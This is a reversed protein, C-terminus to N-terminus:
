GMGGLLAMINFGQPRGLRFPSFVFLLAFVRARCLGSWLIQHLVFCLCTVDIFRSLTVWCRILIDFFWWTRLSAKSSFNCKSGDHLGFMMQSEYVMVLCFNLVFDKVPYCVWIESVFNKTEFKTLVTVCCQNCKHEKALDCWFLSAQSGSSANYCDKSLRGDCNISWM